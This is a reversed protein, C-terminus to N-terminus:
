STAGRGQEYIRIDAKNRLDRLLAQVEEPAPPLALIEERMKERVSEFPQPAMKEELRFIHYGYGEEELPESVTGPALSFVADRLKEPWEVTRDLYGLDGQLAATTPNGSEKAAVAGFDEGGEVIRRRLERARALAEEKQQPPDGKMSAFPVAIHRVHYRERAYTQEYYGRLSEDDIKRRARVVEGILLQMQMDKELGDRIDDLTLGEARATERLQDMGGADEALRALEGDVAERVTEARVSVGLRRAERLILLEKLVGLLIKRSGFRDMVREYFEGRTLVEGDISALPEDSRGWPSSAPEERQWPPVRQPPAASSAACGLAGVVALLTMGRIM